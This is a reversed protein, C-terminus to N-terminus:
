IGQVASSFALTVLEITVPARRKERPARCKEPSPTARLDAHSPEPLQSLHPGVSWDDQADPRRAREEIDEVSQAPGFPRQWASSYWVVKGRESNGPNWKLPHEKQHKTKKTLM